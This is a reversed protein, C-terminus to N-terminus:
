MKTNTGNTKKEVNVIVSRSVRCPFCNTSLFVYPMISVFPSTIFVVLFIVQAELSDQCEM